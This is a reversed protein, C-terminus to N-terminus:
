LTKGTWSIISRGVSRGSRISQVRTGDFRQEVRGGYSPFYEEKLVAQNGCGATVM